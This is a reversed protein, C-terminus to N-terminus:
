GIYHLQMKILEEDDDDSIIIASITKFSNNIEHAKVAAWYEIFTDVLDYKDLGIKKVILPRAIGNLKLILKALQNVKEEQHLEPELSFEISSIDILNTTLPNKNTSSKKYFLAQDDIKITGVINNLESVIEALRQNTLANEIQILELSESIKRSVQALIDLSNVPNLSEIEDFRDQIDDLENNIM